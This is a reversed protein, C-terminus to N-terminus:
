RNKFKKLNLLLNSQQWRKTFNITLGVDDLYNQNGIHVFTLDQLVLGSFPALILSCSNLLHLLMICSVHVTHM